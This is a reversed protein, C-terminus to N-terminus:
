RKRKEQLDAAVPALWDFGCRCYYHLHEGHEKANSGYSCSACSCVDRFCGPAHYRPEIGVNGCKVCVEGHANGAERLLRAAERLHEVVKEGHDVM